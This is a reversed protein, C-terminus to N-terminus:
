REKAKVWEESGVNVPGLGGSKSFLKKNSVVIVNDGTRQM